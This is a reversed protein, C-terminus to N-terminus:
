SKANVMWLGTGNPDGSAVVLVEASEAPSAAIAEWIVVEAGQNM